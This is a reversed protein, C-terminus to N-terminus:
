AWGKKKFRCSAQSVRTKTQRCFELSTYTRETLRAVFFRARAGAKLINKHLARKQQQIAKEFDVTHLPLPQMSWTSKCPNSKKARCCNIKARHAGRKLFFFNSTVNQWTKAENKARSFNRFNKELEYGEYIKKQARM